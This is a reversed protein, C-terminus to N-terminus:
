AQQGRLRDRREIEVLEGDRARQVATRERRSIGSWRSGRAPAHRSRARLAADQRLHALHFPREALERLIVALAGLPVHDLDARDRLAPHRDEVGDHAAADLVQQEAANRALRGHQRMQPAAKRAHAVHMEDRPPM